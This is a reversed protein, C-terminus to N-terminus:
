EVLREWLTKGQPYKVIRFPIVAKPNYGFLGVINPSRFIYRGLYEPEAVALVMDEPLTPIEKTSLLGYLELDRYPNTFLQSACWKVEDKSEVEVVENLPSMAMKFLGEGARQDLVETLVESTDFLPVIFLHQNLPVVKAELTTPDVWFTMNGYTIDYQPIGGPPLYDELFCDLARMRYLAVGIFVHYRTLSEFGEPDAQLVSTRGSFSGPM